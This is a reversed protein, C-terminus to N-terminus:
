RGVEGAAEIRFRVLRAPAAGEAVLLTGNPDFALARPRALGSARALLRGDPGFLWLAGTDEDAVAVRGAEDVAVPLLGSGKRLALPWSAVSRGDADIRQVRANVREAVVLDGRPAYAVGRTGRLQGPRSGFGALARQFRGSFDFTLLREREPDVIAIAGGKDAALLTPDVRGIQLELAPEALEVAVGIRRGFHDYTVVRRNERDLVAIGLTGLVAVSGPRRLQGPDSGLGGAEGIWAFDRQYRQVRHASADSVVIRGFPDVALGAPELVRGRDDPLRALDADGARRLALSDRAAALSEAAAASEAVAPVAAARGPVVAGPPAATMLALAVIIKM